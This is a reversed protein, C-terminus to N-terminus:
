RRTITPPRPDEWGDLPPFQLAGLAVRRADPALAVAAVRADSAIATIHRAHPALANELADADAYPVVAVHRRAGSPLLRTSDLAAVVHSATRHMEVSAAGAAGLWTRAALAEDPAIARAPWEGAVEDLAQHLRAAARRVDAGAVFVCQPSLCGSQEYLAIDRAVAEAAEDLARASTVVVAFGHGRAEVTVGRPANAAITALTDDSGFAILRDIGRVDLSAVFEEGPLEDVAISAGSARIAAAVLRSVRPAMRPPRVRLSAAGRAIPLLMARIPAVPVTEALLVALSEGAYDDFAALARVAESTYIEATHRWAYAAMARDIAGASAIADILEDDRARRRAITNLVLAAAADRELVGRSKM